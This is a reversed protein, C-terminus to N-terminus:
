QMLEADSFNTGTASISAKPYPANTECTAPLSPGAFVSLEHAIGFGPSAALQSVVKSVAM